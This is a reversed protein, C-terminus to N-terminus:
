PPFEKIYKLLGRKRYDDQLEQYNTFIEADEDVMNYEKAFMLYMTAPTVFIAAKKDLSREPSM